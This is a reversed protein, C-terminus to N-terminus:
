IVNKMRNLSIYHWMSSKLFTDKIDKKPSLKVFIFKKM